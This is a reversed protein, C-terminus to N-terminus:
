RLWRAFRWAKLFFCTSSSYAASGDLTEEGTTGSPTPATMILETESPM